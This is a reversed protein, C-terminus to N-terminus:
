KAAFKISQPGATASCADTVTLDVSRPSGSDIVGFDFTLWVNDDATSCPLDAPLEGHGEAFEFHGEAHAVFGGCALDCGAYPFLVAVHSGIEVANPGAFMGDVLLKPAGLDPPENCTPTPASICGFEDDTQWPEVEAVASDDAILGFLVYVTPAPTSTDDGPGSAPGTTPDASTTPPGSTGPDDPGSSDSGGPGGPGGTMTPTTPGCALAALLGSICLIGPARRM